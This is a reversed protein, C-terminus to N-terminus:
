ALLHVVGALRPRTSLPLRHAQLLCDSGSQGKALSGFRFLVFRSHRIGGARVQNQRAESGAVSLTRPIRSILIRVRIRWFALLLM